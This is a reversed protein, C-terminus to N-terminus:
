QGPVTPAACGNATGGESVPAECCVSEPQLGQCQEGDASADRCTTGIFPGIVKKTDIGMSALVQRQGVETDKTTTMCCTLTGATCIPQTGSSATSSGRIVKDKIASGGGGVAGLGEDTLNPESPKKSSGSGPAGSGSGKNGSKSRREFGKYGNHRKLNSSTFPGSPAPAVPFVGSLPIAPQKPSGPQNEAAFAFASMALTFLASKNFMM